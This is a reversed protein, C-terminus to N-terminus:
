IAGLPTTIPADQSGVIGYSAEIEVGDGHWLDKPGYSIQLDLDTINCVSTSVVRSLSFPNHLQLHEAVALSHAVDRNFCCRTRAV